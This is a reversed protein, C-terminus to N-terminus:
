VGDVITLVTPRTWVIRAPWAVPELANARVRWLGTPGAIYHQGAHTVAFLLPQEPGIRTATLTDRAIAFLGVSTAALIGSENRLLANVRCRGDCIDLRIFRGNHLMSIGADETGIWLRRQADELLSIIRDSSPGQQALSRFLTFRTGDFRTLGGYTGLWLYGDQSQVIANVSNQPLGDESGYHRINDSYRPAIAPEAISAADIQWAAILAALTLLWLQWGRMFPRDRNRHVREAMLNM